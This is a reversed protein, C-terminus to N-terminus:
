KLKHGMLYDGAKMRKKGPAQLETILITRGDGCAVELGDKGSSVIEGPLSKTKNGTKLAAFIKLEMGGFSASASPWPNLGRIKNIIQESPLTWDLPSDSKSLQRTYTVEAENQKTRKSTGNEIARLTHCLVDAGITKLHEFLEGSTEYEGIEVERREIMDGADMEETIYITTVGTIRDGNLVSWQIPASGRYKPLLSGHLNVCGKVPIDIIEKPILKGYAVIVIIEPKLSNILEAASGDRLTRPQYVPIGYKLALEKVPSYGLKMGRDKPKDPQTFVGILEQGDEYIRKLSEAAFEPTGMFLIKM